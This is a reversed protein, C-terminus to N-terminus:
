RARWSMFLEDHRGRESLLNAKQLLIAPNDPSVALAQSLREEAEDFRERFRLLVILNSINDVVVKAGDLGRNADWAKSLLEIAGDLLEWEDSSLRKGHLAAPTKLLDGVRCAALDFMTTHSDILSSHSSSFRWHRQAM